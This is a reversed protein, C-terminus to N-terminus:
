RVFLFIPCAAGPIPSAPHGAARTAPAERRLVDVRTARTLRSFILPLYKFYKLELGPFCPSRPDAAIEPM